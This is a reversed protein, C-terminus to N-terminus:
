SAEGNLFFHFYVHELYEATEWNIFCIKRDLVEITIEGREFSQWAQETSEEQNTKIVSVAERRTM